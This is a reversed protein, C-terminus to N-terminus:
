CLGVAPMLLPSHIPPFAPVCDGNMLRPPLLAGEPKAPSPLPFLSLWGEGDGNAVADFGVSGASGEPEVTENPLWDLKPEPLVVKPM